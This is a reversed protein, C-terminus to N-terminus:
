PLGLTLGARLMLAGFDEEGVFPGLGGIGAMDVPGPDVVRGALELGVPRQDGHLRIRLGVGVGWAAAWDSGNGVPGADWRNVAAGAFATVYPNVPGLALGVEPGVFLTLLANDATLGPDERPGTSEALPLFGVDLRARVHGTPILGVSVSLDGGVGGDLLESGVLLGTELSAGLM